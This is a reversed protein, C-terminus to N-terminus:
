FYKKSSAKASSDGGTTDSMQVNPYGM